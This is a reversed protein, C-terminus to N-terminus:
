HRMATATQASVRGIANGVDDAVVVRVGAPRTPIEGAPAPQDEGCMSSFVCGLSGTYVGVSLGAAAAAQFDDYQERQIWAM